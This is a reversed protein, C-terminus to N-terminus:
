MLSRHRHRVRAALGGGGERQNEFFPRAAPTWDITEVKQDRVVVRDLVPDQM